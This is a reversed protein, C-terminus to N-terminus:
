FYEACVNRKMRGQKFKVDKLKLTPTAVPAPSDSPWPWLEITRQERYGGNLIVLRQIDLGRLALYDKARAGWMRAEGRRGDSGGYSIIYAKLTPDHQLTVFLNDLHAMFDECNWNSFSDFNRPTVTQASASVSMVLILCFTAIASHRARM